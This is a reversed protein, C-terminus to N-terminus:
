AGMENGAGQRRARGSARRARQEELWAVGARVREVEARSFQWDKRRRRRDVPHMVNRDALQRLRLPTIGLAAAAEALTLVDEAPSEQSGMM